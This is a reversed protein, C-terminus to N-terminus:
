ADLAGQTVNQPIFSEDEPSYSYPPETVIPTSEFNHQPPPSPTQWELGTANWPNSSAKRGYLLSWAM